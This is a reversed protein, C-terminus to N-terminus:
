LVATNWLFILTVILYIKMIKSNYYQRDENYSYFMYLALLFMIVSLVWTNSESGFFGFIHVIVIKSFLLIADSKSNSKASFNQPSSKTEFYTMVIIVSIFVFFIGM